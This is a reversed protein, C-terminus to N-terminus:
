FGCSLPCTVGCSFDSVGVTFGTVSPSVVIDPVPFAPALIWTVLGLPRIIPSFISTFLSPFHVKFIGFPISNFFPSM